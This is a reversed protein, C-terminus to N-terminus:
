SLLDIYDPQGNENFDTFKGRLATGSDGSAEIKKLTKEYSRVATSKWLLEEDGCLSNANMAVDGYTDDTELIGVKFTGYKLANATIEYQIIASRGAGISMGKFHFIFDGDTLPSIKGTSTGADSLISYDSSDPVSFLTTDFSDLYEVDTLPTSGSNTLRIAVQVRDGSQLSGGNKDIYTKEM